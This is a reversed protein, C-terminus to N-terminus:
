VVVVCLTDGEASRLELRNDAARDAYTQRAIGVGNVHDQCRAVHHRWSKQRPRQPTEARIGRFFNAARVLLFLAAIRVSTPWAWKQSNSM